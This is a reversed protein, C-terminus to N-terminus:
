PKVAEAREKLEVLEKRQMVGHAISALPITVAQPLGFPRYDQGVRGRVLLRTLGPRPEELVLAWTTFYSGSPAKWSLVLVNPPESQIVTFADKVGPLAPFVTGPEVAQYEALIKRASPHGGNDIFDYAYWGGRGSGMQALWPWVERPSREITIAHTQSARAAPIFEDSPLHMSQEAPDALVSHGSYWALPLILLFLVAISILIRKVATGGISGALPQRCGHGGDGRNQDSM